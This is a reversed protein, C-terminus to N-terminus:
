QARRVLAWTAQEPGRRHILDALAYAAPKRRGGGLPVLLAFVAQAESWPGRDGLAENRIRHSPSIM